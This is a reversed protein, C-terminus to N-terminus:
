KTKKLKKMQDYLNFNLIELFVYIGLGILIASHRYHITTTSLENVILIVPIALVIIFGSRIQGDWLRNRKVDPMKKGHEYTQIDIIIEKITPNGTMWHDEIKNRLYRFKLYFGYAIMSQFFFRILVVLIGVVFTYRWFPQASSSNFFGFYITLIAAVLTYSWNTVNDRRQFSTNLDSELRDHYKELWSPNENDSM